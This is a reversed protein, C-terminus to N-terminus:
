IYTGCRRLGNMQWHVNLNNGHRSKQSYHHLSCLPAHIKQIFTKDLYIDLLPIAPNYPLEINLIRLYWWVTKWVPQALECEWWCHLLCKKEACGKWCKNTSKNIIAMRVQTFCYRVTTKTQMERIIWSTLMKKMHRNVM